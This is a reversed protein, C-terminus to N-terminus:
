KWKSVCFSIIADTLNIIASKDFGSTGFVKSSIDTGLIKARPAKFVTYHSAKLAPFMLKVKNNEATTLLCLNGFMNVHKLYDQEDIFHFPSYSHHFSAPTGLPDQTFIHEIIYDRYDSFNCDDFPSSSVKRTSDCEKEFCWLVYKAATHEYGTRELRTRFDSVPMWDNIFSDINTTVDSLTYSPIRIQCIINYIDKAPETGRTRYVRLDITEIKEITSSNLWGRCQMSIMLPYLTANVQLFSFIKKYSCDRSINNVITLFENVYKSFEECFERIFDEINSMNGSAIGQDRLFQLSPVLYSEYVAESSISWQYSLPLKYKNISELSFHHYFFRLLDSEDISNVIYHVNEKKGNDKILQFNTFIKGFSKAILNKITTLSKGTLNLTASFMLFAKTIDLLTPLKGRTNLGMFSKVALTDDPVEFELSFLSLNLYDYFDDLSKSKLVQSSLQNYFYNYGELLLRNTKVDPSPAPFVPSKKFVADIMQRFYDQNLNGLELSNLGNCSHFFVKMYKPDHKCLALFILHLTTLRQQGDIVEYRKFIKNNECKTKEIFKLTLTGLYHETTTVMGDNLDQWIDQWNKMDWSYSRQYDPVSFLRGELLDNIDVINSVASKLSTM